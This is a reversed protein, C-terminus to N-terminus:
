VVWIVVCLGCLYCSISEQLYLSELFSISLPLIHSSGVGVLWGNRGDGGV